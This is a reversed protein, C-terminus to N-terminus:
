NKFPLGGNKIDFKRSTLKSSLIFPTIGGNSSDYIIWGRETWWKLITDPDVGEPCVRVDYVVIAKKINKKLKRRNM